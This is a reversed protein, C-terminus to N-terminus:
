FLNRLFSSIFTGYSGAIGRRPICGFFVFVRVLKFLYIYWIDMVANNVVALIRFFGLHRDIISRSLYSM